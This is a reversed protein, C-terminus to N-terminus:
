TTRSHAALPQLGRTAGASVWPLRDVSLVHFGDASRLGDYLASKWASVDPSRVIDEAVPWVTKPHELLMHGRQCGQLQIDCQLRNMTTHMRGGTQMPHRLFVDAFGRDYFVNGVRRAAVAGSGIDKCVFRPGSATLQVRHEGDVRLRCTCSLPGASCRILEASQALHHAPRRGRFLDCQHVAMM